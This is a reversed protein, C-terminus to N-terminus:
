MPCTEAVNGKRIEDPTAIRVALGLEEGIKKIIIEPTIEGEEITIALSRDDYNVKVEKVGKISGIIGKMTGPISPCGIRSPVLLITKPM